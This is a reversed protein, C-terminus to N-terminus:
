EQTTLVDQGNQTHEAIMGDPTVDVEHMNPQVNGEVPTVSIKMSWGKDARRETDVVECKIQDPDPYVRMVEDLIAQSADGEEVPSSCGVCVAMALLALVLLLESHQKQHTM